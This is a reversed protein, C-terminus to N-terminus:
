AIPIEPGIPARTDEVSDSKSLPSYMSRLTARGYVTADQAHLFGEDDYFGRAVGPIGDIYLPTEEPRAADLRSLWFSAKMDDSAKFVRLIAIQEGETFNLDLLIGGQQGDLTATKGLQLSLKFQSPIERRGPDGISLELSPDGGNPSYTYIVQNPSNESGLEYKVGFYRYPNLSLRAHMQKLFPALLRADLSDNVITRFIEFEPPVAVENLKSDEPPRSAGTAAKPIVLGIGAVAFAELFERRPMIPQNNEQKARM